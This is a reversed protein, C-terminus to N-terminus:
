GVEKIAKSATSYHIGLHDAIEKLTYGYEIHALHMLKNREDKNYAKEFIKKLRPRNLHRQSRPIEKYKEKDALVDKCKEIFGEEGLLIQGQLDDWPSETDIGERVFRRYLKKHKPNIKASFVSFGTM